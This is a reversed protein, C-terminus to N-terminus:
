HVIIREEEDEKDEEDKDGQHDNDKIRLDNEDYDNIREERQCFIKIM